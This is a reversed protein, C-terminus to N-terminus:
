DSAIVLRGRMMQEIAALCGLCEVSFSIWFGRALRRYNILRAMSSSHCHERKQSCVFGRGTPCRLKWRRRGHYKGHYSVRLIILNHMVDDGLQSRRKMHHVELDKMSGGDM